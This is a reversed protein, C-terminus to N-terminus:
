LLFSDSSFDNKAIETLKIKFAVLLKRLIGQCRFAVFSTALQSLSRPTACVSQDPSKRIPFGAPKAPLKSHICLETIAFSPFHFMETGEPVSILRSERLLPSRFPFLRFRKYTLPDPGQAPPTIPSKPPPRFCRM